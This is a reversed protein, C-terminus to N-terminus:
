RHGTPPALWGVNLLGANIQKISAFATHSGPATTPLPATKSQGTQAMASPLAGVQAAALTLAASALFERRPQDIACKM